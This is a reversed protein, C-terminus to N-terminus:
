FYLIAYPLDYFNGLVASVYFIIYYITFKIFAWFHLNLEIYYSCKQASYIYLYIRVVHLAPPLDDYPDYPPIVM